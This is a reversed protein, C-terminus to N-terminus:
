RGTFPMDEYGCGNLKNHVCYKKYVDSEGAGICGQESLPCVGWDKDIDPEANDKVVLNIKPEVVSFKIPYTPTRKSM